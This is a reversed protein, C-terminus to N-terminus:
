RDGSLRPKKEFRGDLILDSFARLADRYSRTVAEVCEQLTGMRRERCRGYADEFAAAKHQVEHLLEAEISQRRNEVSKPHRM